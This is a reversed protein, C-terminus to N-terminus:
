KTGPELEALLRRYAPRELPHLADATLGRERATRLAARAAQRLKGQREAEALHFYFSSARDQAIAERLDRRAPESQGAALYVVARTDLLRAEPGLLEIARNIRRLAEGSKSKSDRHQRALLWASNNLAAVNDSDMDLVRRYLVEADDYRGQFDRLDALSLLLATGTGTGTRGKKIAAELWREVRKAHEGGAAGTANANAANARVVAVSTAAVAEPPCRDWARECLDLAEKVRRQRGLFAAYLLLREPHEPRSAWDQYAKDADDVKGLEELLAAVLGAAGPSPAPTLFQKLLVVAEATKERAHFMRAKIEIAEWTNPHLKALRDLWPQAADADKRRLKSRTHHALLQRDGENVALLREMWRDAEIWNGRAEHLQVLLFQRQPTLRQKGGLKELADIAQRRFAPRTALVVARADLDDTPETATATPQDQRNRDLLELAERFGRSDGRAALALALNRRVWAADAPL